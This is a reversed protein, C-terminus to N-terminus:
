EFVFQYTWTQLCKNFMGCQKSKGTFLLLNKTTNNVIAPLLRGYYTRMNIAGQTAEEQLQRKIQAPTYCPFRQLLLAVAGAIMPCSM